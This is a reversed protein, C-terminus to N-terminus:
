SPFATANPGPSRATWWFTRCSGDGDGWESPVSGIAQGGTGFRWHIGCRVPRWSSRGVGRGIPDSRMLITSESHQFPGSRSPWKVLFLCRFDFSTRFRGRRRRGWASDQEGAPDGAAGPPRHGRCRRGGGALELVRQIHQFGIFRGGASATLAQRVVRSALAPPLGKLAAADIELDCDTKLVISSALEIASAELYEEDQRALAAERALVPVIGPSFAELVPMLEHRVRNRAFQLDSNSADERYRLARETVYSRLDARRIDLLPRVIQGARPRIAALGRSGAGRLLRM